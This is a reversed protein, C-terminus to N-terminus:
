PAQAPTVATASGTSVPLAENKQASDMPVGPGIDTASAATGSRFGHQLPAANQAVAAPAVNNSNSLVGKAVAEALKQRYSPTEILRAEQPNSLYGGEVLIAACQQGRLIGPFRAHRIGRDRHGNVQLLARHVQVALFLNKPDFANNPFTQRLEDPFGRTLNSPMGVPTLCYTELGSESENPAASNFHLSIFLDAKHQVAFAVRNSLAIDTDNSRTLFVRCNNAALVAQLRSAWDLTFEKEFRNGLVSRTGPNEGGHGPDIVIVPGPGWHSNLEGQLLPQVTKGLDLSHVYPQGDVLQPAFGLRVELGEWQALQSGTRLMFTGNTSQLAYSPAAAGVVQTPPGVSTTRCWRQLPIWGEVPAATKIEPSVPTPPAPLNTELPTGVPFTPPTSVVTNDDPWVVSQADYRKSPSACGALLVVLVTAVPKARFPVLSNHQHPPILCTTKQAKV